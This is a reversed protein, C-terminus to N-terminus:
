FFYLFFFLVAALFTRAREIAVLSAALFTKAQESPAPHAKSGRHITCPRTSWPVALM